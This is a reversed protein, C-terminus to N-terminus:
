FMAIISVIIGVVFGGFVVIYGLSEIPCNVGFISWDRDSDYGRFRGKTGRDM